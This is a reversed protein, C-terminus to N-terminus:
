FPLLQLCQCRKSMTVETRSFIIFFLDSSIWVLCLWLATHLGSTTTGGRWLGGWISGFIFELVMKTTCYRPFTCFCHLIINSMQFEIRILSSLYLILHVRAVCMCFSVSFFVRHFPCKLFRYYAVRFCVSLFCMVSYFM